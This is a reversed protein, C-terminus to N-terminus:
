DQVAQEDLPATMLRELEEHARKPDRGQARAIADFNEV